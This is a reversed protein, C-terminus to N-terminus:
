SLTDLMTSLLSDIVGLMKASAQYARQYRLMDATEEDLSVGSYSQRQAGLLDTLSKQDDIRTDNNSVDQGVQTVIKTFAAAPTSGALFGSNKAIAGVALAIRNEGSPSSAYGATVTTSTIGAGLSITGATLNAANFFNTNGNPNSVTTTYATNVQTVL